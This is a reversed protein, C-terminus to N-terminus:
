CPAPFFRRGRRGDPHHRRRRHRHHGSTLQLAGSAVDSCDCGRSGPCSGALRFLTAPKKIRTLSGDARSGCRRPTV